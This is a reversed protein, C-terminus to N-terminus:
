FRLRDDGAFPKEVVVGGGDYLGGCEGRCGVALDHEVFGEPGVLVYGCADHGDPFDDAVEIQAGFEVCEHGEELDLAVFVVLGIVAFEHLREVVQAFEGQDVLQREAGDAHVDVFVAVGGVVPVEANREAHQQEAGFEQVSGPWVLM